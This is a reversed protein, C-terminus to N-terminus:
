VTDSIDVIHRDNMQNVVSEPRLFMDSDNLILFLQFPIYEM